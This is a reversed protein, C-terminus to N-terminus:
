YHFRMSIVIIQGKDENVGYVLRHEQTIRRSWYGSLNARLVEPKGNGHYPDTVVAKLLNSIRRQVSKNGSKKWYNREEIARKTFVIEM